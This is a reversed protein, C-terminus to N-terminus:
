YNASQAIKCNCIVIAALFIGRYFITSNISVGISLTIIPGVSWVLVAAFVAIIPFKRVQSAIRQLV